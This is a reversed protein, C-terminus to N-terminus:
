QYLMTHCLTGQRELFLISSNLHIPHSVDTLSLGTIRSSPVEALRSIARIGIYVYASM